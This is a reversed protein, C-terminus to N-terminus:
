VRYREEVDTAHEMGFVGLSAPETVRVTVVGKQPKTMQLGGGEVQKPVLIYTAQEEAKKYNPDGSKSFKKYYDFKKEKNETDYLKKFIMISVWEKMHQFNKMETKVNEKSKAKKEPSNEESATRIREANSVYTRYLSMWMKRKSSRNMDEYKKRPKTATAKGPTAATTTRPKPTYEYINKMGDYYPPLEKFNSGDMTVCGLVREEKYEYETKWGEKSPSASSMIYISVHGAKHMFAKCTAEAATRNHALLAITSAKSEPMGGNKFIVSKVYLNFYNMGNDGKSPPDRKVHGLTKRHEEEPTVHVDVPLISKRLVYTCTRHESTISISKYKCVNHGKVKPFLMKYNLNSDHQELEQAFLQKSESMNRAVNQVIYSTKTDNHEYLWSYFKKYERRTHDSADPSM